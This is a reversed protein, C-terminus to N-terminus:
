QFWLIDQTEVAGGGATYTILVTAPNTQWSADYYAMTNASENASKGLLNVTESWGITLPNTASAGMLYFTYATSNTGTTISDIVTASFDGGATTWNSGTKYINYTAQSDVWDSRTLEHVDLIFAGGGGNYVYNTTIEVEVDTITGGPDSPTSIDMPWRRPGTGNAHKGTALPETANYNSTPNNGYIFLDQVLTGATTDDWAQLEYKSAQASVRFGLTTGQSVFYADQAQPNREITEGISWNVYNAKTEYRVFEGDLSVTYPYEGNLTVVPQTYTMLLTGAQDYLYAESGDAKVDLVAWGPFVIVKHNRQGSALVKGDPFALEPLDIFQTGDWAHMAKSSQVIVRKTDDTPHFYEKSTASRKETQELSHQNKYWGAVKEYEFGNIEVLRKLYKIDNPKVEYRSLLKKMDQIQGDSLVGKQLKAQALIEAKTMGFFSPHEIAVPPTSTAVDGPGGLAGAFALGGGFILFLLWKLKNIM